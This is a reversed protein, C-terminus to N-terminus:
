SEDEKATKKSLDRSKNLEAKEARQRKGIKGRLVADKKKKTPNKKERKRYYHFFV